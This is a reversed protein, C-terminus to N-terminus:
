DGGMFMSHDDTEQLSVENDLPCNNPFVIVNNCPIPQGLNDKLSCFFVEQFANRRNPCECPEKIVIIKNM